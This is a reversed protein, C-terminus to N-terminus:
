LARQAAADIEVRRGSHERSWAFAEQRLLGALAQEDPLRATLRTALAELEPPLEVKAGVLVVSHRAGTQGLALERLRRINMAYRLYPSFDFLLWIGRGPERQMHELLQGSDNCAPTDFADIDLRKLGDTITWQWLPRLLEAVVHGFSDRLLAEEHT